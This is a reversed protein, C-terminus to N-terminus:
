LEELRLKIYANLEPFFEMFAAEIEFFRARLVASALSFNNEFKARKALMQFTIDTGEITLFSGLWDSEIMHKVPIHLRPPLLNFNAEMIHYSEFKFDQFSQDSFTSWKFALFHDFYVDIVVASYKGFDKRLEKILNLVVPHSDTYADIWKHVIFGNNIDGEASKIEVHTYLDMFTNPVLLDHRGHSLFTHALHNL